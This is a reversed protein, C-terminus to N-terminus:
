MPREKSEDEMRDNVVMLQWFDFVKLAQTDWGNKVTKNKTVKQSWKPRKENRKRKRGQGGTQGDDQGEDDSSEADEHKGEKYNKFRDSAFSM